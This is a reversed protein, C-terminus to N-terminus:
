VVNLYHRNISVVTASEVEFRLGSALKDFVTDLTTEEDIKVFVTKMRSENEGRPVSLVVKYVFM